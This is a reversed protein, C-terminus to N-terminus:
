KQRRARDRHQHHEGQEAPNRQGDAHNAMFAAGDNHDHVTKPQQESPTDFGAAVISLGRSAPKATLPTGFKASAGRDSVM